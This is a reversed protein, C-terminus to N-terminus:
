AFLSTLRHGNCALVYAVKQVLEEFAQDVGIRTKASSEVFLTGFKRAFEL